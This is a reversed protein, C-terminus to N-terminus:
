IETKNLQDETEFPFFGVHSQWTPGVMQWITSCIAIVAMSPDDEISHRILIVSSTLAQALNASLKPTTDKELIPEISPPQLL